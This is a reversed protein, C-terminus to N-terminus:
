YKNSQSDNPQFVSRVCRLHSLAERQGSPGLGPRPFDCAWGQVYRQVMEARKGPNTQLAVGVEDISDPEYDRFFMIGLQDEPPGYSSPDIPNAVLTDIPLPWFLIPPQHELNVARDDLLSLDLDMRVINHAMLENDSVENERGRAFSIEIGREVALTQWLTNVRERAPNRPM